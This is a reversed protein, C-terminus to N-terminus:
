ARIGILVSAKQVPTFTVRPSGMTRVEGSWPVASSRAPRPMALSFLMIAAMAMAASIASLRPKHAADLVQRRKFLNDAGVAQARTLAESLIENEIEIQGPADCAFCADGSPVHVFDARARAPERAREDGLPCPAHECDLAIRAAQGSEGLDGRNGSFQINDGRVRDLYVLRKEEGSLM